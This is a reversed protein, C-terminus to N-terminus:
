KLSTYMRARLTYLRYTEKIAMKRELQCFAFLMQDVAPDFNTQQDASLNPLLWHPLSRNAVHALLILSQQAMQTESGVDIFIINGGFDGKNLKFTKIILRSAINHRETVMIQISANQCCSLMHIQSDQQHCLLCSSNTARGYLHFHGNKKTYLTGTRFKMGKKHYM